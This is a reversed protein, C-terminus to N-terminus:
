LGGDLVAWLDTLTTLGDAQPDGRSVPVARLGAQRAGGIDNIPDDGVVVLEGARCGCSTRLAEFFRSDPKRVGVESSIVRREIRSLEPLGDCIAHLRADFNSAVALRYGRREAEMLTEEVDAFCMWSEPRGFHTFLREFCGDADAVDDLVDSVVRRWFEREREEGQGTTSEHWVSGHRQMSVAFRERVEAPTRRSGFECGIRYYALHVPPDAFILTGVADFAIWRIESTTL